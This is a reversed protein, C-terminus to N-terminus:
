ISPNKNLFLEVAIFATIGNLKRIPHFVAQSMLNIGKRAVLLSISVYLLV